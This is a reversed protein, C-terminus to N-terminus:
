VYLLIEANYTALPESIVNLLTLFEAKIADIAAVNSIASDFAENLPDRVNNINANYKNQYKTMDTPDGASKL